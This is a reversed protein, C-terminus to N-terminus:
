VAGARNGFSEAGYRYAELTPSWHDAPLGAKLKLQRVFTAPDPLQSWVSPLLTSQRGNDRLVLGDVDPRLSRVLEEESTCPIRRPTSLISVHFELKAIEEPTIPPFRPDKFGAQYANEAVDFLLPRLPLLTGRCGRLQGGISITVFTARQAKLSAPLRGQLNVHPANGGHAVAEKVVERALDLLIQRANEDLQATHAYEFAFSGYGVVRDRSGRTDGSNRVDLATVRMDRRQAQDILGRISHFGCARDGECIAPQLREIGVATEGDKAKCTDYDHYHSLDSSIIIATEPGGWLSELAASVQGVPADGVLLPLIEIEGLARHIFPLHVELSHEGAFPERAVAVSPMRALADRSGRDVNLPGLPTDWADAPSLAIGRLPVRHNPGLLVVRKIEGKRRSLLKYAAGAIDGSYVHGAHPAIVAKPELALTQAQALSGDVGAALTIPEAPYFMGAVGAPQVSATM